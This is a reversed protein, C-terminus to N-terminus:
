QSVSQTPALCKQQLFGYSLLALVWFSLFAVALFPLFASAHEVIFLAVLSLAFPNYPFLLVWLGFLGFSLFSRIPAKSILTSRPPEPYSCGHIHAATSIKKSCWSNSCSQINRAMSIKKSCAHTLALNSIDQWPYSCSHIHYSMLHWLNSKRHAHMLKLLIPYTKCLIHSTLSHNLMCKISNCLVTAVLGFIYFPLPQFHLFAFM